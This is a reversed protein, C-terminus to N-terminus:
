NVTQVVSGSSGTINSTGNYTATVTTKGAPLASTTLSAKGGSLSVTGLTTTGATFTVTGVPVVTPSKVTAKFVVNEGVVSPNPSSTVTTTTTAQGVVQSLTPSTSKNNLTDGNYTATISLTGAPLNTKKLLAFGNVLPVTGLSSAGNKFTVTGTPQNPSASTVQSTLNVAQGYVSPNLSSAASTNSTYKNVVQKLVKSTKGLYNLDGSYVATISRTGSSGFATSYAATGNVLQVTSLVVAGQQFNVSGTPILGNAGSVTATFAVAQNVYSPNPSSTFTINVGAQAVIQILVASTSAVFTSDGSYTATLSHSGATLTSVTLHAAGVSLTVSGLTTTGDYFTVSGTPTGSQAPVVVATLTVAQGFKSPNLSSSLTTATAIMGTGSLSVTQPSNVANDAITLVGSRTGSVTPTFTVSIACNSGPQITTNCTDTQAFDGQVTIGTVNLAASGTNTLTISQPASTTGVQQGVFSLSSPSLAVVPVQLLVSTTNSGYNAVALDLRGNGDFDGATISQPSTGTPYDMRSSFTGDGNGLLLSVTSSGYNAVALDIKGDGNFDAPIVSRPKSGAPIDNHPQFTGDGNGLLISIQSGTAQNTGVALDLRGDANFDATALMEPLPGTAYDTHAGFTGDGNGLLISVTGDTYNSVALDLQGDRNFDGVVIGFPLQGTAFSGYPWFDFTGDGLGLLISVQNASQNVVALDLAGDDNFDGTALSFPGTGVSYDVHGQFTGDGNGLLISVTNSTQNAIALDLKGDGNFDGTVIGRAGAGTTYDVHGRFTGDGNGILVSVSGSFNTVALDPIGDGNFDGTVVSEPQLAVSLDSQGLSISPTPNTVSFYAANSVSGSDPSSVTILATTPASVDSVSIMTTLQSSSVFTTPRPSGNWNVTSQPVFGFGNVTLTFGPSGPPLAVPILPANIQAVPDALTEQGTGTFDGGLEYVYLLGTTPDTDYYMYGDSSTGSFNLNGLLTGQIMSPLDSYAQVRGSVNATCAGTAVVCTADFSMRGYVIKTIQSGVQAENWGNDPDLGPGCSIEAVSVSPDLIAFYGGSINPVASVWIDNSSIYIDAYGGTSTCDISGTVPSSYSSSPKIGSGSRHGAAPPRRPRPCATQLAETGNVCPSEHNRAGRPDFALDSQTTSSPPPVRNLQSLLFTPTLCLFLFILYARKM